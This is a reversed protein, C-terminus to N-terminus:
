FPLDPLAARGGKRGRRIFDLRARERLARASERERKDKKEWLLTKEKAAFPGARSKIEKQRARERRLLWGAREKKYSGLGRKRKAEFAFGAAKRHFFDRKLARNEDGAAFAAGSGALLGALALIQLLPGSFLKGM